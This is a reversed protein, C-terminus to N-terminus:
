PSGPGVLRVASGLHITMIGITLSLSRAQEELELLHLCKGFLKWNENIHLKKPDVNKVSGLSIESAFLYRFRLPVINM